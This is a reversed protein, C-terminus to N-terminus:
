KPPLPLPRWYRVEVGPRMSYPYYDGDFETTDFTGKTRKDYREYTGKFICDDFDNAMPSDGWYFLVKQGDRPLEDKVSIWGNNDETPKKSV